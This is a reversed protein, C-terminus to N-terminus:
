SCLNRASLTPTNRYAQLFNREMENRLALKGDEIEKEPKGKEIQALRQTLAAAGYPFSFAGKPSTKM